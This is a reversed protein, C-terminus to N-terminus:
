FGRSGDASSACARDLAALIRALLASFSRMNGHTHDATLTATTMLLEGYDKQYTAYWASALYVVCCYFRISAITDCDQKRAM